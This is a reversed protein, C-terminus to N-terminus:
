VGRACDSEEKPGLTAPLAHGGDAGYRSGLQGLHVQIGGRPRQLLIRGDDEDETNGQSRALWCSTTTKRTGEREEKEELGARCALLHSSPRLVLVCSKRRRGSPASFFFSPFSALRGFLTTTELFDSKRSASIAKTLIRFARVMTAKLPKAENPAENGAQDQPPSFFGQKLFGNLPSEEKKAHEDLAEGEYSTWHM